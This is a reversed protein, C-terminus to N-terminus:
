ILTSQSVPKDLKTIVEGEVVEYNIGEWYEGFRDFDRVTVSYKESELYGIQKGEAKSMIAYKPIRKGRLFDSGKRTLLFNGRKGKVMAVLGHAKARGLNSWQTTTLVGEKRPHVVNIGKKEIFRAIRKVIDVTGRDVGYIYTTTQNCCECVEPIYQPKKEM